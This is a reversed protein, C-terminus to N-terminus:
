PRRGPCSSRRESWHPGPLFVASRCSQLIFSVIHCRLKKGCRFVIQFGSGGNYLPAAQHANGRFGDVAQPGVPQVRLRDFFDKRCLPPGLVIGQDQVDVVGALKGVEAPFHRLAGQQQRLAEPRPGEGHDQRHLLEHGFGGGGPQVGYADAAGVVVGGPLDDPQRPNGDRSGGGVGGALGGGGRRGVDQVVHVSFDVGNHVAAGAPHPHLGGDHVQCTGGGPQQPGAADAGLGQPLQQPHQDDVPSDGPFDGRVGHDPGRAHFVLVVGRRRLHENHLAAALGGGRINAGAESGPVRHEAERLLQGEVRIQVGGGVPGLRVGGGEGGSKEGGQSLQVVAFDLPDEGAAGGPAADVHGGPVPQSLRSAKM